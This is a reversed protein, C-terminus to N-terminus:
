SLDVVVVGLIRVVSEVGFPRGIILESIPKILKRRSASMSQDNRFGVPGDKPVGVASDKVGLRDIRLGDLSPNEDPLIMAGGPDPCTEILGQELNEEIFFADM